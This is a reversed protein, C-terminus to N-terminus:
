TSAYAWFMEDTKNRHYKELKIILDTTRYLNIAEKIGKITVEEVFIHAGDIIIGKIKEPYKGSTKLAISDGDSHGFLIAKDINWFDLMENLLDAEQEIYYNNRKSYSFSCSEGYVQRDYVLINCKALKGLKEPFCRWLKM